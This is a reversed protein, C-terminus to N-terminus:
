SWGGIIMTQDGSHITGHAHRGAKLSGYRTWQNDQFKAIIDLGNGYAGGIIFAANYTSTVAYGFIRQRLWKSAKPENLFLQRLSVAFMNTEFKRLLIIRHTQGNIPKLIIYNVRSMAHLIIKPDLLWYTVKTIQWAMHWIMIVTQHLLLHSILAM